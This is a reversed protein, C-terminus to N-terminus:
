RAVKAGCVFGIQDEGRAEGGAFLVKHDLFDAAAGRVHADVGGQGEEVEESEEQQRNLSSAAIQVLLERLMIRRIQFFDGGPTVSQRLDALHVKADADGALAVWEEVHHAAHHTEAGRGFWGTWSWPGRFCLRFRTFRCGLFHFLRLLDLLRRRRHIQVSCLLYVLQQVPPQTNKIRTLRICQLCAM